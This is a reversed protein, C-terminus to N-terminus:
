TAEKKSNDASAFILADLKIVDAELCTKSTDNFYLGTKLDVTHLVGEIEIKMFIIPNSKAFSYCFVDGAKLDGHKVTKIEEGDNYLVNAM